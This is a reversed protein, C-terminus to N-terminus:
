RAGGRNSYGLDYVVRLLTQADLAAYPTRALSGGWLFRWSSSPEYALTGAYVSSSRYGLLLHDYFYAYAELTASTQWPLQRSLSTRLSHYGNSPALLRVYSVRLLTRADALLRVTGESRAGPRNDDYLTLFGSGEITLTKLARLTAMTGVEDFRDTTFVSLVSQRSLWLAPHTHLYELSLDLPAWPTLDAWLRSDALRRSDADLIASGAFVLLDDINARADLGLNRHSLEGRERQEHFSGSASFAPSSFGLRAGALWHGSREPQQYAEPDRLLTDADSGLHHYSPRSDWRPLVTLGGYVQASLGAGLDLGLLAGDFRTFRAAGGVFQQRGFRVLAGGQRYTVSATQVDGDVPQEHTSGTPWFRTWAALELDVSDKRWSTDLNKAGLFVYESLPFATSTEVLSGAPGPSLARRFLVAYTESRASLEFRDRPVAPPSPPPPEAAAPFVSLFTLAAARGSWRAARM